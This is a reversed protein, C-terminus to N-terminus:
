AARREQSRVQDLTAWLAATFARDRERPSADALRILDRLSAVQVEVGGLTVLTADRLLDRYGRSGAPRPAAVLRQSGRFPWIFRRDLGAFADDLDPRHAGLTEVAAELSRRNGPEDEPVILLEGSDLTIPWGHVAGAVEGALVYRVGQDALARVVAGPKVPLLRALKSVRQDPTLALQQAIQSAYSDDANAVTVALTLGCASLAREVSALSPEHDGAEWRAITSQPLGMRLALARQSIGARRRGIAILDRSPM